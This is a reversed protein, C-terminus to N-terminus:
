FRAAKLARRVFASSVGQERAVSRIALADERRAAEERLWAAVRHCAEGEDGDPSNEAVDLWEAATDLDETTIRTRAM